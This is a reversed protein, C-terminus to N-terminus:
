TILRSPFQLIIMPPRDLQQLRIVIRFGPSLLIIRCSNFSLISLRVKQAKPLTLMLLLATTVSWAFHAFLLLNLSHLERVQTPPIYLVSTM